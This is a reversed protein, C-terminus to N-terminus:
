GEDAVWRRRLADLTGAAIGARVEGMLRNMVAINHITILQGGLGEEAKLLHHIYGRSFRQCSHCSCEPDIPGSDERYQANRLNIREGPAGPLLAGGHRAM